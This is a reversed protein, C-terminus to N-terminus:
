GAPLPLLRIASGAVPLGHVAGGFYIRFDDVANQRSRLQIVGAVAMAVAGAVAVVVAGTVAGAVAMSGAVAVGVAGTVAMAVAMVGAVAVAGALAV